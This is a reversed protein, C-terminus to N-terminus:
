NTLKINALVKDFVIVYKDFQNQEALLSFIYIGSGTTLFVQKTKFSLGADSFSYMISEAPNKFNDMIISSMNEFRFDNYQNGLKEVIDQTNVGDGMSINNTPIQVSLVINEQFLDNPNEKPSLFVINDTTQNIQEAIDEIAQWGAPIKTSLGSNNSTYNIWVTDQSGTEQALASNNFYIFSFDIEALESDLNEFM